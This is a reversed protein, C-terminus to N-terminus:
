NSETQFADRFMDIAKAIVGAAGRFSGAGKPQGDVTYWEYFGNNKIVRELMPQIEEWAEDVFGNRILQQIMRGGWWSWDGGNHYGFPVMFPNMFYGEPYPPYVTIGISQANALKQNKLMWSNVDRIEEKSLLGAEIAMATGGHFYLASEDFDDPFPSRDLYIHPRYKNSEADWLHTRISAKTNDRISTWKGKNEHDDMMDILNNLAIVFMANIYISIAPHSNEDMLVGLEHRSQVDGWDITTDGWLLGYDSALRHELLYQMACELRDLVTKGSVSEQLISSEGTKKIYKYVAQVLSSEQDTIVTNKHGAYDPEADTFRYEYVVNAQSIKDKPIFGDIINGDVGQFKLFMLLNNRVVEPPLATCALEIFTNYDRIWVEHYITGAQLGSKILDCAMDYVTDLKTFEKKV